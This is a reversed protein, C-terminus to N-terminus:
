DRCCKEDIWAALGSRSMCRGHHPTKQRKRARCILLGPVTAPDPAAAVCSAPFPATTAPCAAIERCSMGISIFVEIGIPEALALHSRSM